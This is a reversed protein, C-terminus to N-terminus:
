SGTTRGIANIPALDLNLMKIANLYQTRADKYATLLHHAKPMGFRDQETRGDKDFIGQYVRLEDLAECATTLIALGGSDSINYERQIKKFLKKGDTKLHGPCRVM